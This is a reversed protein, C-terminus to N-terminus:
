NGNIEEKYLIDRYNKIRFANRPSVLGDMALQKISEGAKIRDECEQDEVSNRLWELACFYRYELDVRDSCVFDDFIYHCNREMKKYRLYKEHHLFYLIADPESTSTRWCITRRPLDEGPLYEIFEDFLAALDIKTNPIIRVHWHPSKDDQDPDHHLMFWSLIRHEARMTELKEVLFEKTNYSITAIPQITAMIHKVEMDKM